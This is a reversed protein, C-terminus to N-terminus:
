RKWAISLGWTRGEGPYRQFAGQWIPADIIRVAYNENTINNAYISLTLDHATEWSLRAGLIGYAPQITNTDLDQDFVVDDRWSYYLTSFLTSHDFFFRQEWHLFSQWNPTENLRKGSVDQGIAPDCNGRAVQGVQCPVEDFRKFRADIYSLSARVLGNKWPEIITEWELGRTNVKGANQLRFANANGDYASSQYNRFTSDFLVVNMHLRQNWAYFKAGVERNIVTEPALVAAEATLTNGPTIDIPARYFISNSTNDIAAGKYGRSVTLFFHQDDNQFWQFSITGMMNNDTAEVHHTAYDQPWIWNDGYQRGHGSIQDRLLRLGGSLWVSDRLQARAHGFVALNQTDIDSEVRTVGHSGNMDVGGGISETSPFQQDYFYFGLLYEFRKSAPSLWQLEQTFIRLDREDWVSVVDLDITDADRGSTHQWRRAGTISKIKTGNPLHYSAELVGHLTDSKEFPRGDTLAIRNQTSPQVAQRALAPLVFRQSFRSLAEPDVQSFVRACCVDHTSQYTLNIGVEFPRSKATYKFRLGNHKKINEDRQTVVNHVDGDQENRTFGSVRLGSFDNLPQNVMIEARTSRKEVEYDLSVLHEADDSVPNSLFHVAGASVNKGFLTGQPGRMVEVRDIDWMDQLGSGSPGTVVGDVVTSVSQEIGTAIVGSGIGRVHLAQGASSIAGHYSLSPSFLVLDRTDRRGMDNILQGDFASIAMPTEHAPRARKQATIVVHEIPPTDAKRTTKPLTKKQIIFRSSAAERFILDNGSLLLTLAQKATYRGKLAPARVDTLLNAPVLYDRGTITAFTNLSAALTQKQLDFTFMLAQAQVNVGLSVCLVALPWWRQCSLM